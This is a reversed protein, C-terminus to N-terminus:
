QSARLGSAPTLAGQFPCGTRHGSSRPAADPTGRDGLFGWLILKEMLWLLPPFPPGRFCLTAGCVEGVSLAEGPNRSPRRLHLICVCFDTLFLIRWRSLSFRFVSSKGCFEQQLYLYNLMHVGCLRIVHARSYRQISITPYQRHESCFKELKQSGGLFM